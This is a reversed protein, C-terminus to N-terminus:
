DYETDTECSCGEKFLKGPQGTSDEYQGTQEVKTETNLLAGNTSFLALQQMGNIIFYACYGISDKVYWKVPIVKAYKAIFSDRVIVPISDAPVVRCFNSIENKEHGEKKCAFLFFATLVFAPILIKCITLRM